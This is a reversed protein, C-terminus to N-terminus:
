SFNQIINKEFFDYINKFNIIINIKIKKATIEFIKFEEDMWMHLGDYEDLKFLNYVLFIM